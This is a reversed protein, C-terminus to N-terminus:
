KRYGNYEYLNEVGELAVIWLCLYLMMFIHWYYWWDAVLCKVKVSRQVIQWILKRYMRAITLIRSVKYVLRRSEKSFWLGMNKSDLFKAGLECLPKSKTKTNITRLIIYMPVDLFLTPARWKFFFGLM